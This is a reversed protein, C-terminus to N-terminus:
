TRHHCLHNEEHLEEMFGRENLRRKITSVSVNLNLNEKIEQASIKKGIVAERKIRNDTRTTTVRQRGGRPLTKVTNFSKSKNIVKRVGEPTLNNNRATKRLSKNNGYDIVV